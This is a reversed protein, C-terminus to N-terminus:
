PIGAVSHSITFSSFYFPFFHSFHFSCISHSCINKPQYIFMVWLDVKKYIRLICEACRWWWWWWCWWERQKLPFFMQSKTENEIANNKMHIIRVCRLLCLSVHSSRSSNLSYLVGATATWATEMATCITESRLQRVCTCIYMTCEYCCLSLIMWGFHEITSHFIKSIKFKQWIIRTKGLYEPHRCM